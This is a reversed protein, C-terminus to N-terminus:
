EVSENRIDDCIGLTPSDLKQIATSAEPPDIQPSSVIKVEDTTYIALPVRYREAAGKLWFPLRKPEMAEVLEVLHLLLLQHRIRRFDKEPRPTVFFNAAVPLWRNIKFAPSEVAEVFTGYSIVSRGTPTDVIMAEGIARQEERFLLADAWEHWDDVNNLDGDALDERLRDFKPQLKGVTQSSDPDLFVLEQRYLEAWGLFASLRYLTSLVKYRCFYPNRTPDLSPEPIEDTLFSKKLYDIPYDENIEKLRGALEIASLVIPDRYKRHIDSRARTRKWNEFSQALLAEKLWHGFLTGATTVLAALVAYTWISAPPQTDAFFLMLKHMRCGKCALTYRFDQAHGSKAAQM